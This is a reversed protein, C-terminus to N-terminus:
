PGGPRALAEVSVSPLEVPRPGTTMPAFPEKPADTLTDDNASPMMATVATSVEPPDEVVSCEVSPLLLTAGGAGATVAAVYAFRYVEGDNATVTVPWGPLMAVMVIVSPAVGIWPM